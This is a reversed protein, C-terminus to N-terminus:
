LFAPRDAGHMRGGAPGDVAYHFDVEGRGTRDGPPHGKQAEPAAPAAAATRKKRAAGFYHIGGKGPDGGGDTGPAAPTLVLRKWSKWFNCFSRM